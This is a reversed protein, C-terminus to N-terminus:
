YEEVSNTEVWNAKRNKAANSFLNLEGFKAEAEEASAAEIFLESRWTIRWTRTGAKEACPKEVWVSSGDINESFSNWLVELHYVRGGYTQTYHTAHTKRGNPYVLEDDVYEWNFGEIANESYSSGEQESMWAVFDLIEEPANSGIPELEDKNFKQKITAM